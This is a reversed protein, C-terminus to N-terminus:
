AEIYRIDFRDLRGTAIAIKSLFEAVEHCSNVLEYIKKNEIICEDFNIILGDDTKKLIPADSQDEFYYEMIEEIIEQLSESTNTYVEDGDFWSWIVKKTQM